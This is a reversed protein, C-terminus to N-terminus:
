ESHKRATLLTPLVHARHRGEMAAMTDVALRWDLVGPPLPELLLDELLRHESVAALIRDQNATLVAVAFYVQWDPGCLLCLLLYRAVDPFNLVNLYAQSMWTVVVQQPCCAERVFASVLMPAEARLVLEVMHAVATQVANCSAMSHLGAWHPALGAVVHATPLTPFPSPTASPTASPSPSPSPSAPADPTRRLQRRLQRWTSAKGAVLQTAAAVWDNADAASWGSLPELAYLDTVAAAYRDLLSHQHLQGRPIDSAPVDADVVGSDDRVGVGAGAGAGAGAGVSVSAGAEARGTAGPEPAVSFLRAAAPRSVSDEWPLRDPSRARATAVAPKSAEWLASSVLAAATVLRRYLQLCPQNFSFYEHSAETRAFPVPVSASAPGGSMAASIPVVAAHGASSAAGAGASAGAGAYAGARDGAKAAAAAFAGVRTGRVVPAHPRAGIGAGVTSPAAAVGAGARRVSKLHALFAGRAQRVWAHVAGVDRAPTADCLASLARRHEDDDRDVPPAAPEAGGRVVQSWAVVGKLTGPLSTLPPLTPAAWPLRPPLRRELAGGVVLARVAVHTAAVSHPTLPLEATTGPLVASIVNLQQQLLCVNNLSACMWTLVRLGLERADEQRLMQAVGDRSPLALGFLFKALTSAPGDTRHAAVRLLHPVTHPAFVAAQLPHLCRLMYQFHSLPSSLALALTDAEFLSRLRHMWLPVVASDLVLTAGVPHCCLRTMAGADAVRPVGSQMFLRRTGHFLLVHVFFGLLLLSLSLSLLLLSLLLLSLLM